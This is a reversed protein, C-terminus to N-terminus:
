QFNNYESHKSNAQGEIMKVFALHEQQKLDETNEQAVVSVSSNGEELPFFNPNASFIDRSINVEREWSDGKMLYSEGSFEEELPPKASTPQPSSSAATPVVYARAPEPASGTLEKLGIVIAVVILIGMIATKKKDRLLEARIRPYLEEWM